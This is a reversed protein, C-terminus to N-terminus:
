NVRMRAYIKQNVPFILIKKFISMAEVDTREVM